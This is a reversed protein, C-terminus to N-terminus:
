LTNREIYSPDLPSSFCELTSTVRELSSSNHENEPNQSPNQESSSWELRSTPCTRRWFEGGMVWFCSAPADLRSEPLRLTNREIYSPDLPSNCCELTNTVRELSNSNHENEPNQGSNQSVNTALVRRGYGLFLESPYRPPERPTM